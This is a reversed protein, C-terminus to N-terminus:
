MKFIDTFFLIDKELVSCVALYADLPIIEEGTLMKGMTEDPVGIQQSLWVQSIENEELYQKIKEWPKM